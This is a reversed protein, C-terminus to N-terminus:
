FLIKLKGGAIPTTKAGTAVGLRLEVVGNSTINIGQSIDAIIIKDGGERFIIEGGVARQGFFPTEVAKPIFVTDRPLNKIQLDAIMTELSISDSQMPAMYAQTVGELFFTPTERTFYVEGFKPRALRDVLEQLAKKEEISTGAILKAILASDAKSLSRVKTVVVTEAGAAECRVLQNYLASLQTRYKISIHDVTDRVIKSWKVAEAQKTKEATIVFTVAIVALVIAIYILTQKM